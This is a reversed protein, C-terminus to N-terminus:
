MQASTYCFVPGMPFVEEVLESSSTLLILLLPHSNKCPCGPACSLPHPQLFPLFSTIGLVM